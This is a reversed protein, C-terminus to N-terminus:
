YMNQFWHMVSMKIEIMHIFSTKQNICPLWTIPRGDAKVMLEREFM